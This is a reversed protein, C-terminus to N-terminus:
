SRPVKPIVDYGPPTGGQLRIYPVTSGLTWVGHEYAAEILEWRQVRFQGFLLTTGTMDAPPVAEIMAIVADYGANVFRKLEARSNLYVEPDFGEITHPQDVGSSIISLNGTVVHEIQAAFDRVGETPATRLGEEPMADVMGLVNRRQRQFDDLLTPKVEQAALPVALAIALAAALIPRGNM